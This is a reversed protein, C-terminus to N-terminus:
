KVICLMLEDEDQIHLNQRTVKYFLSTSCISFIRYLAVLSTIAKRLIGYLSRKIDKFNGVSFYLLNSPSM